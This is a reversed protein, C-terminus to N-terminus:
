FLDLQVTVDAMTNGNDHHVYLHVLDGAALDHSTNYHSKNIDTNSLTLIYGPINSRDNSTGGFPTHSVTFVTSHLAGSPTTASINLGALIAPQQMRYFAAPITADPFISTNGQKKVEQTGPWLYGNLGSSLAGKLGYYVTTPYIYSSFPKDGASKTVLDVGPGVQIGATALYTPNIVTSPYTQLIDSATYTHNSSPQVCGVTTTRM